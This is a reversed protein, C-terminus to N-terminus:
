TLKALTNKIDDFDNGFKLADKKSVKMNKVMSFLSSAQSEMGTSAEFNKITANINSFNKSKIINSITPNNIMIDNLFTKGGNITPLLNQAIICKLLYSLKLMILDSKDSNATYYITELVREVSSPNMTFGSTFMEPLVILDIPNSVSDIKGNLLRRNEEPNEWVLDTQIIAVRLDSNM